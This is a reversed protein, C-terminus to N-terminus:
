SCSTTFWSRPVDWLKRKSSGVKQRDEDGQLIFDTLRRVDSLQVPKVLFEEAGEEM